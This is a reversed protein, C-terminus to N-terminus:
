YFDFFVESVNEVLILESHLITNKYILIILSNFPLAPSFCIRLEGGGGGQESQIPRRKIGESM